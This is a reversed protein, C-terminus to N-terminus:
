PRGGPTRPRVTPRPRQETRIEGPQTRLQGLQLLSQYESPQMPFVKLVGRVQNPNQPEREWREVQWHREGDLAQRLRVLAESSEATAELDIHAVPKLTQKAAPAPVAPQRPGGVAGPRATALPAPTPPITLWSARTIRVGELEPFRVTLNYLEDLVVVEAERWNAIATYKEETVGYGEIETKLTKIRQNLEAIEDARSSSELWYWGGVLGFIAAALTGGAIAYFRAKSPQPVTRKPAVFNVPLKKLRTAAELAGAAHLFDFDTPLPRTARVTQFPDLPRVAIDLQDALAAVEESVSAGALFLAQVATQPYAARYAALARKLEATWDGETDLTRGYLWEHGQAVILESGAVYASVQGEAQHPQLQVLMGLAHPLVASLKLGAAQCLRELAALHSKRIMLALARREGTPWPLSIPQHDLVVEDPAVALEKFTQFQVIAPEEHAPVQPYHVDRCLLMDRGITAVVPAPKIGAAQLHARLDGGIVAAQAPAFPVSLGVGGGLQVQGGRLQGELLKLGTADWDLALFGAM